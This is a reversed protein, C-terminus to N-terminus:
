SVVGLDAIENVVTATFVHDAVTDYGIKLTAVVTNIGDSDELSGFATYKGTMDLRHLKHTYTASTSLANGTWDMRVNRVAQNRWQAKENISSSNHNYTMELEASFADKNFYVFGFVLSGSDITYEPAFGSEYSLKAGLLTINQRTTGFAASAADIYVACKPALIEEVTAPINGISDFSSTQSTRGVWESSVTVANNRESTLAFSQCFAYNMVEVNENDGSKFTFTNPNRVVSTGISYQYIRGTGAGDQTGAQVKQIAGEYVYLLQEFTAPTEPFSLAAEEKAIYSRLTNVPVAIDEEVMMPERNDQIHAVPGRWVAIASAITGPTAELGFQTKALAKLGAM